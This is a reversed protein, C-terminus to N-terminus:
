AWLLVATRSLVIQEKRCLSLDLCHTSINRRWVLSKWHCGVERGPPWPRRTELGLNRRVFNFAGKNHFDLVLILPFRPEVCELVGVLQYYLIEHAEYCLNCRNKRSIEQAAISSTQVPTIKILQLCEVHQVLSNSKKKKILCLKLIDYHM